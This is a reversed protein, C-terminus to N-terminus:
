FDGLPLRDDRIGLQNFVGVGTWTRGCVDGDAYSISESIFKVSGDGFLFNAGGAHNSSFGESCRAQRLAQVTDVKNLPVPNGTNGTGCTTADGVRGLTFYQGWMGTGPPNRNGVWSAANCVWHREGVLFTNSLGDTVDEIKTKGNNVFIGDEVRDGTSLWWNWARANRNGHVAIYNSTAAYVLPWGTGQFHRDDRTGQLTDKAQADSPCKYVSIPTQCLNWNAAYTTGYESLRAQNVNLKNYLAEQEIYPLIFTPWGWQPGPDVFQVTSGWNASYDMNGPPFQKFVDYYNHIALGIQKLNSKCQSRRAAERAQQVAPLLLSVLIAIIAIVVLLEILTFGRQRPSRLHPKTFRM